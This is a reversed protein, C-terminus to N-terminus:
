RKESFTHYFTKLGRRKAEGLAARFHPNIPYIERAWGTGEIMIAHEPCWQWTRKVEDACKPCRRDGSCPGTLVSVGDEWLFRNRCDLGPCKHGFLRTKIKRWLSKM